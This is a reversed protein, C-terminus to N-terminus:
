PLVLALGVVILLVGLVRDVWLGHRRLWDAAGTTALALAVFIYWFADIFMALGAVGARSLTSADVPVFPGLLALFFVAIKPNLFAIAFGERFGVQTSVPHQEDTHQDSAKLVMLGMWLLYGGGLMEIARSAGSWTELVAAVGIVACFAYIGVGLGHGLGTLMGQARGGSITNKVVVALSPGPSMAGTLCIAGISLWTTLEMQTVLISHSNSHTCRNNKM